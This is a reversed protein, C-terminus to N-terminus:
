LKEEGKKATIELYNRKYELSMIEFDEQSVKGTKYDNELESIIELLALSEDFTQSETEGEFYSRQEELFLPKFLAFFAIILALITCIILSIHPM